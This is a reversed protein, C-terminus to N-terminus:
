PSYTEYVNLWGDAIEVDQITPSLAFYPDFLFPLNPSQGWVDQAVARLIEVRAAHLRGGPRDGLLTAQVTAGGVLPRLFLFHRYLLQGLYQQDTFRGGLMEMLCGRNFTVTAVADDPLLPQADAKVVEMPVRLQARYAVQEGAGTVTIKLGAAPSSPAGQPAM